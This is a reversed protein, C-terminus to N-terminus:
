PVIVVKIAILQLAQSVLQAMRVNPTGPRNGYGSWGVIGVQYCESGPVMEDLFLVVPINTHSNKTFASRNM